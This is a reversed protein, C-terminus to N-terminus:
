AAENPAGGVLRQASSLGLVLLTLVELAGGGGGSPPQTDV